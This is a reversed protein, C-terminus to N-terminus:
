GEPKKSKIATWGISTVVHGDLLLKIHRNKDYRPLDPTQDLKSSGAHYYIDPVHFRLKRLSSALADMDSKRFICYYPGEFKHSLSSLTFETTHLAMGGPKLVEMSNIAFRQALLVSGVHELSCTTWVFDFQGFLHPPIHNMDATEYSVLRDFDDWSVLDPYFLKDRSGTFQGNVWGARRAGEADMDTAVIEVGKSAFLSILPEEGAAFVLGRKGPELMGAAELARVIFVFEWLKRHRRNPPLGLMQLVAASEPSSLEDFTALRGALLNKGGGGPWPVAASLFESLIPPAAHGLQPRQDDLEVPLYLGHMAHKQIKRLEGPAFTRDSDVLSAFHFADSPPLRRRRSQTPVTVSGATHGAYLFVVGLSVVVAVIMLVFRGM